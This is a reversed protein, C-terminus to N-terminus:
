RPAHGLALRLGLRLAPLSEELLCVLTKGFRLLKCATRLM